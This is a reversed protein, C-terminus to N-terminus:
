LLLELALSDVDIGTTVAEAAQEVSLDDGMTVGLGARGLMEVDNGGDGVALTSSPAAAAKGSTRWYSLIRSAEQM